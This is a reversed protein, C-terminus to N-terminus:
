TIRMATIVKPAPKVTGLQSKTTNGKAVPGTKKGSLVKKEMAVTVRWIKISCSEAVDYLL